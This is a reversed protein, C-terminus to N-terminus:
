KVGCSALKVLRDAYRGGTFETSLFVDVMEMAVLPTILRGGMTLVNADNHQRALRAMTVSTCLASRVAPYRNLTMDMGIGSGCMGIGIEVTGQTIAEALKAGFDPYDVRADSDTGLDIVEYGKDKLYPVLAAKLSFGGHDATIAIKKSM